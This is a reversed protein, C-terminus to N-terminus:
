YPHQLQQYLPQPKLVPIVDPWIRWFGCDFHVVSLLSIPVHMSQLWSDLQWENWINRLRPCLWVGQLMKEMSQHDALARTMVANPSLQRIFGDRTTGYVTVPHLSLTRTQTSHCNATSVRRAALSALGPAIFHPLGTIGFGFCTSVSNLLFHLLCLEIM